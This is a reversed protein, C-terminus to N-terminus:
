SVEGSGPLIEKSNTIQPPPLNLSSIPCWGALKKYCCLVASKDEAVHV